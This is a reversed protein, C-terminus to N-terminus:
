PINSSFPDMVRSGVEDYSFAQAGCHNSKPRTQIQFCFLSAGSISLPLFRFKAHYDFNIKEQM